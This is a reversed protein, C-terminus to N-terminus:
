LLRFAANWASNILKIDNVTKLVPQQWDDLLVFTIDKSTRKKDSLMYEFLKEYSFDSRKVSFSYLKEYATLYDPLQRSTLLESLKRAAKMGLFVAEGHSIQNFDSAKELAHAFTHGFNLYARVGSEFEDEKVIGAKIQICRKILSILPEASINNINKEHFIKAKGFISADRIAGYKLIESLGNIWEKHPLTKLFYLDAIVSKPQYFSGILNKGTSHNIGTKGGISSDVMALVTTPVHILPLGRLTTAAAFGGLDGTVGGGIVVVPTNRRVRNTLLFHVCKEWFAVSKSAEGSPVIYPFVDEFLEALKALLLESHNKYVNEDVLVFVKDSNYDSIVETLSRAFINEGVYVPYPEASTEVTIDPNM